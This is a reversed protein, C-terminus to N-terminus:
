KKHLIGVAEAFTEGLTENGSTIDIAKRKPAIYQALERAAEARYKFPIDEDLELAEIDNDMTAILFKFPDGGLLKIQEAVEVSRKNPTGKTRGAKKQGPKTGRKKGNISSARKKKAVKRVAAVTKSTSANSM